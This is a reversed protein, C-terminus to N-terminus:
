ASNWRSASRLHSSVVAARSASSVLRTVRHDKSATSSVLDKPAVSANRPASRVISAPSITATIPGDPEPFDVKSCQADLM